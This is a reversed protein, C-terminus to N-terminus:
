IYQHNIAENVWDPIFNEGKITIAPYNKIILDRLRMVEKYLLLREEYIERAPHCKGSVARLGIKELDETTM